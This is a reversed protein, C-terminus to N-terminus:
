WDWISKYCPGSGVVDCVPQFLRLFSITRFNVFGHSFRWFILRLAYFFQGTAIRCLAGCVKGFECSQIISPYSIVIFLCYEVILIYKWVQTCVLNGFHFSPEFTCIYLSRLYILYKSFISIWMSEQFKSTM